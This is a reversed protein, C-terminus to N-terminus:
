SISIGAVHREIRQVDRLLVTTDQEEEVHQKLAALMMELRAKERALAYHARFEPHELEKNLYEEFNTM